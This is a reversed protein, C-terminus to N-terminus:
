PPLAIISSFGSRAIDSPKSSITDAQAVLSTARGGSVTGSAALGGGGFGYCGAFFTNGAAIDTQGPM